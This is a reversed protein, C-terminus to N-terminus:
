RGARRHADANPCDAFHSQFYRGEPAGDPTAVEVLPMLKGGGIMEGLANRQIPTIAWVVRAGCSRCNGWESATWGELKLAKASKPWEKAASM